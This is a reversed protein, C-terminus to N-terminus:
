SRLLEVLHTVAPNFFTIVIQPAIGLIFTLVIAPIVIAQESSGLDVSDSRKEHLPGLFVRRFFTLLYLATLLLGVVAFSTAVPALSFSGKLILFEAPFGSLGPLGLSAFTAVGMLGAFKPNLKRLGGFNEMERLGGSRQELFCVFGFLAAAVIGHSLVQLLVGNIAAAKENDMGAAGSRGAAILGLACYGLHSLSSYAFLRKIDRQGFAALAGYLITVVSMSLLPIHLREIQEPFMPIVWRLLAYVGMKSMIGTLLMTVPTPAETYALPLWGHLPWIPLKVAVGAFALLFLIMPIVSTAGGASLAELAGHKALLEPLNLTGARLGIALFALLLGISGVMTYVFFQLAAQPSNSGGYNKILLFAPILSIEWYFFFHLFNRATFTGLLGSQLLLMLGYYSNDSTSSYRSALLAMWTVILTLAIFIISIGDLGLFYDLHIFELWAHHEAFQVGPGRQFNGGIGLLLIGGIGTTLLAAARARRADRGLATLLLGVVFPLWVLVSLWPINM